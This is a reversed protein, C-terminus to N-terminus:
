NETGSDSPPTQRAGIQGRRGFRGRLDPRSGLGLGRDVSRLAAAALNRGAQEHREDLRGPTTVRELAGGALKVDPAESADTPTVTDGDNVRISDRIVGFDAATKPDVLRSILGDTMRERLGQPGRAIPDIPPQADPRPGEGPIATM